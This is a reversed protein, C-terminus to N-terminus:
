LPLFFPSSDRNIVLLRTIVVPRELLICYCKCVKKSPTYLALHRLEDHAYRGESSNSACYRVHSRLLPKCKRPCALECATLHPDRSTFHRCPPEGCAPWPYASPAISASRPFQFHSDVLSHSWRQLHAQPAMRYVKVEVRRPLTSATLSFNSCSSTDVADSLSTLHHCCGNNTRYVTCACSGTGSGNPLSAATVSVHACCIYDM